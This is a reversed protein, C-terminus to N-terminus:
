NSLVASQFAKPQTGVYRVLENRIADIKLTKNM